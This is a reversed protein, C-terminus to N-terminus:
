INNKIEVFTSFQMGYYVFNVACNQYKAIIDRVQWLGIGSHNEKTTYGLSAVQVIDVVEKVSNTIVILKDCFQKEEISFSVRRSETECAAEIANDLLNGLMRCLDFNDIAINDIPCHLSINMTVGQSEARESKQILLSCLAPNQDMNKAIDLQDGATVTTSVLKEHYEKLGKLDDLTIYGSYTGLINYFDHKVARFDTIVGNLTNIHAANNQLNVKDANLKLRLIIIVISLVIIITVILMALADKEYIIQTASVGAYAVFMIGSIAIVKKVISGSFVNDTMTVAASKSKIFRSFILYLIINMFASVVESGADIMYNYHASTQQFIGFNVIRSLCLILLAFLYICFMMHIMRHKAIKFIKNCIFFELLYLVPNPTALLYVSNGLGQFGSLAYPIYIMLIQFIVLTSAFFLKMRQSIKAAFLTLFISVVIYAFIFNAVNVIVFLILEMTRTYAFDLYFFSPLM